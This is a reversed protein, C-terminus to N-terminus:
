GLNAETLHDQVPFVAVATVVASSSGMRGDANVPNTM